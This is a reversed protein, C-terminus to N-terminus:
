ISGEEIDQFSASCDDNEVNNTLTLAGHTITAKIICEHREVIEDYTVM